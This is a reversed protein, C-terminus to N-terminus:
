KSTRFTDALFRETAIRAREASRAHYAFVRPNPSDTLAPNTFAHVTGSYLQLEWDLGVADLNGLLATRQETTAMPDDAGTCVLVSATGPAPTWSSDDLLDLGAHIAVVGRLEGGARLLELATSGGFCHGVAVVRGPDVEPQAIATELAATARAVWRARDGVMSGMLPGIEDPGSPTTRGGWVDAAFVTYGLATYADVWGLAFPGLGFADHFLLVTPRAQAGAPAALLGLMETGDHSYAIDRAITSM